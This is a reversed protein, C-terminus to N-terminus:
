AELTSMRDALARALAFLIDAACGPDSARLDDLWRRRIVLVQGPAMATVSASRKQATGFFGVEGIVEGPGVLRLRRDGDHIEFAGELVVFLESQVLGKTTLVQGAGIRLLFGQDALKHVTRSDLAELFSRSPDTAGHVRRVWEWVAAADLEVPACDADFLKSWGRTDVPERGGPGYYADALPALFSRVRELYSRDSLVLTMPVTVGDPTPVLDAAYTRFGLRRYHRVLGSLCTLFAVDCGLETGALQYLACLLSVLGLHGRQDPRLMLRGIEATGFRQLGDFRDMAFKRMVDNPAAAPAWSRIRGTGTVRGDDAVTYIIVTRPDDDEPDHLVRRCEDISGIGRHLEEVYVSYRFRFVAERKRDDDAIEVSAIADALDPARSRVAATPEVRM